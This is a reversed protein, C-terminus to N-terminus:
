IFFWGSKSDAAEKRSQEQRLMRDVSKMKEGVLRAEQQWKEEEVIVNNNKGWFWSMGSSNKSQASRKKEIEGELLKNVMKSWNGMGVELCESCKQKAASNDGSVSLLVREAVDVADRTWSLGSQRNQTKSSDRSSTGPASGLSASAFLIEGVYAMVAAEECIQESTRTPIEDGTTPPPPYPPSIIASSLFSIISRLTSTPKERASAEATNSASEPCPLLQRRARIVSLFAPLATALNGNRAHHMALSTTALLLNSTVHQSNANIVGSSTDAVGDFGVPVAGMAIDLGWDYMDEASSQLGKYNLWDACSLAADLRQRTTFGRTNLIKMYYTEPRDFCPVCNEELPAAGSGLPVPKPRPNSPGIVFESPFATNNTTDRVWGDAHEAARACGMIAAHYGRRWPEPKSSIDLGEKGVNFGTKGIGAVYTNREEGSTTRLNPGDISADELRSLLRHWYQGSGIWNAASKGSLGLDEESWANRYSIRSLMTWMPPSPHYRETREQMSAWFATMLLFIMSWGYVTYKAGKRVENKLWLKRETTLLRSLQYQFQSRSLSIPLWIDSPTHLYPLQPRTSPPSILLLQSRQTFLRLSRAKQWNKSLRLPRQSSSLRPHPLWRSLM